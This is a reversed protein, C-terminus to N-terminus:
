LRVLRANIEDFNKKAVSIVDGNRLILHGGDSKSFRDVFLLNVLHSRHVRMFEKYPKFQLEYEGINISALTTSPREKDFFFQTYNQQAELRIIHEVLRYEIGTSTPIGIRSPLQQQSLKEFAEQLIKLQEAISRKALRREARIMAEGFEASSIPKLLYELAGFGIATRAYHDHATIFILAFSPDEFPKLVDFGLGDPLEIDLFVLEPRHQRILTIGEKVAFGNGVIVVDPHSRTLLTTIVKHSWPDDDIIITKMATKFFSKRKSARTYSACRAATYFLFNVIAM